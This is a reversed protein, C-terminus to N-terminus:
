KTTQQATYQPPYGFPSAEQTSPLVKGAYPQLSTKEGKITKLPISYLTEAQPAAFATATMLLTAL